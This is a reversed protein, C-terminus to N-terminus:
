GQFEQAAGGEVLLLPLVPVNGQLLALDFDMKDVAQQSQLTQLPFLPARGNRGNIQGAKPLAQELRCPLTRLGV